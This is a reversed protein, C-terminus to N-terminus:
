IEFIIYLYEIKGIFTGKCMNNLGAYHALKLQIVCMSNTVFEFNGFCTPETIAFLIGRSLLRLYYDFMQRGIVNENM